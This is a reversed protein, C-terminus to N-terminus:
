ATYVLRQEQAPRQKQASLVSEVDHEYGCQICQEYWGYQDKDLIVDGKCRPCSKLRLIKM